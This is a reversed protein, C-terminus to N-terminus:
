SETREVFREISMTYLAPKGHRDSQFFIRQSDPAFLPRVQRADRAAHECLTLERRATRLLLLVHPAAVSGSAGVFVSSDANRQFGVFQTTAGVLQDTNTDPTHERLTHRRRAEESYSLYLVTRGDASWLALGLQGEATRLRRNDAGDFNVLWLSNGDRRYLIGARKPRPLPDAIVGVTETVTTAGSKALGILRLRSREQSTEVLLAYLGDETVSFGAGRTWGDPSRYIERSRPAALSVRQLVPGDFCFFSREDPHWALAEKDLAACETLQRAEGNKWDLRFAQMSGTRDSACLLATGRNTVIRAATSPLYTSHAPDTLRVVEFETAPDAYRRRESPYVQGRGVAGRLLVAPWGAVLARRTISRVQRSDPM